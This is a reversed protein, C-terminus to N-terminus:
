VEVSVDYEERVAASALVKELEQVLVAWEGTTAFKDADAKNEWWGVGLCKGTERNTLFFARKLGHFKAPKVLYERWIHIADDMKDLKVQYIGVGAYM